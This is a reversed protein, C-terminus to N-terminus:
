ANRTNDNTLEHSRHLGRRLPGFSRAYYGALGHGAAL